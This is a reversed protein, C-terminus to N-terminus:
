LRSGFIDEFQKIKGGFRMVFALADEEHEFTFNSSPFFYSVTNKKINNDIWKIWESYPGAIGAMSVITPSNM